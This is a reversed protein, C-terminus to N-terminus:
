VVSKRDLTIVADERGDGNIDFYDAGSFSGGEYDTLGKGVHKISPRIVYALETTAFVFDDTSRSFHKHDHALLSDWNTRRHFWRIKSCSICRDFM